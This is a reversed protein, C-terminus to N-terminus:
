GALIQNIAATADTAVQEGTKEGLILSDIQEAMAVDIEPWKPHQPVAQAWGNELETRFALNVGTGAAQGCHFDAFWSEETLAKVSPFAFGSDQIKLRQGEPSAIFQMLKFAAEAQESDALLVTPGVALSMVRNVGTPVFTADFPFSAECASGLFGRVAFHMGLRGALFMDGETQDALDSPGPSVKHKIVLDQMFQLGTIAEPSDLTCVTKDENFLSGGAQRVWDLWGGRGVGLQQARGDDDRKTLAQAATLLADWDWDETPLEVGADEFMKKNYYLATPAGDRPLGWLQENYTLATIHAEFHQTLDTKNAAVFDDIPTIVNREAWGAVLQVPLYFIDPANGAAIRAQLNQLYEPGYNGGLAVYRAEIDENQENFAKFVPEWAKDEVASGPTGYSVVTKARVHSSRSQLVAATAAAGASLKLVNRRTVNAQM